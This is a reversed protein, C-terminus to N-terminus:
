SQQKGWIFSAAFLLYMICNAILFYTYYIADIKSFDNYLESGFVHYPYTGIYFLVMAINIYFMKNKRFKLIDDNKIQKIFELVVLITLILTGVTTSLALVQGLAVFGVAIGITILYVFSCLIFLKKKKLSKYAYLWYLFIYQFPIGFFVYYEVNWTYFGTNIVIWFYEQLFIIILYISFWKWYSNRLKYLYLVGVLASFFESFLMADKLTLQLEQM